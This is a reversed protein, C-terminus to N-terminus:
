TPAGLLMMGNRMGLLFPANTEELLVDVGTGGAEELLQVAAPRLLAPHREKV